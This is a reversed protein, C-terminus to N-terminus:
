IHLLDPCFVRCGFGVQVSVVRIGPSHALAKKTGKGGVGGRGSKSKREGDWWWWSTVLLAAAVAGVGITWFILLDGQSLHVM